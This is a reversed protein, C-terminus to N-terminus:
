RACAKQAASWADSFGALAYSDTFRNGRASRGTVTATGSAALAALAQGDATRDPLWGGDGQISLKFSRGGVALAASQTATGTGAMVQASIKQRPWISVVLQPAARGKGSRTVPASVVYCVTSGRKDRFAGWEGFVGITEKALAPGAVFLVALGLFQKKM